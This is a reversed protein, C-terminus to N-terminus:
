KMYTSEYKSPSVHSQDNNIKYFYAFCALSIILALSGFFKVSLRKNKEKAFRLPLCKKLMFGRSSIGAKVAVKQWADDVDWQMSEEGSAEWVSKLYEFLEENLPDAAVWNEVLSKEEETCEGALYKALLDWNIQDYM